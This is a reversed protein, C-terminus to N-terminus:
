VTLKEKEERRLKAHFTLHKGNSPFLMLNEPHDDSKIQNVHHCVEGKVLPRGIKTALVLRSRYHYRQGPELKVLVRGDATQSRGGKWANLNGIRACSNCRDAVCSNPKGCRNCVCEKREM